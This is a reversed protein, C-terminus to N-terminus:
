SGTDHDSRGSESLVSGLQDALAVAVVCRDHSIPIAPSPTLIFTGINKGGGRVALEVQRTPLGATSTPWSLPNLRVTGDPDIRAGRESPPNWVFRCDQLSLLERLESAVAMLVFDPEEGGAIREAVNHIRYLEHRGEFAARRHRQGRVSLEGVLLGIVVFLVETTLDSRDSIRFSQYPVTLFFDFSAASVTACLAAAGRSGRSAIAVTVLVLVLVDDAAHLHGRWPVLLASAALPAVVPALWFAVPHKLWQRVGKRGGGEHLTDSM